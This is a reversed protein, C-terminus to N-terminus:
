GGADRLMRPDSLAMRAAWETPTEGTFVRFDRTLHAQDAYGAEVAIAAWGSAASSRAMACARHFRLMLALTKPAVGVENVFRRTLHKRSWGIDSAIDRVRATGATRALVDLASAIEPSPEHIARRLIFEEIIEFRRSWHPIDGVKESLLGAERGLVDDIDVMRATLHPVAGGYFRYAGLPTFDVQVCEARGDSEILVPGPFLGATFSPQADAGDPPRGLAIRFPTGFNLLLPLALPAAHRFATLGVGRERYYSISSVLQALRPSPPRRVVDPVATADMARRAPEDFCIYRRSPQSLVAQDDRGLASNRLPALGM